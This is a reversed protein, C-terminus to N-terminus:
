IQISLHNLTMGLSSSSMPNCRKQTLFIEGSILLWKFSFHGGYYRFVAMQNSKVAPALGEDLSILRKAERIDGLVGQDINNEAYGGAYTTQGSFILIPQMLTM